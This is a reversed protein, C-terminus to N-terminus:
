AGVILAAVFALRCPTAEGVGNNRRGTGMSEVCEM